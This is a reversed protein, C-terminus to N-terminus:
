GSIRSRSKYGMSNILDIISSDSSAWQMTIPPPLQFGGPCGVRSCQLTFWQTTCGMFYWSTTLLLLNSVSLSIHISKLFLYKSFLTLFVIPYIYMCIWKYLHLICICFYYIINLFVKLYFICNLVNCHNGSPFLSPSLLTPTFPFLYRCLVLATGIVM